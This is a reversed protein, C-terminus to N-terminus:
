QRRRIAWILWVLALLQVTWLPTLSARGSLGFVKQGLNWARPEGKRPAGAMDIGQTSVALEGKRWRPLIYGAFPKKLHVPVEPKVATGALMYHGSRAVLLGLVLTAALGLRKWTRASVRWPEGAFLGGALVALFPIAPILYRPGMAWGGQWDVLSSNLWLFLGIAALCVWVEARRQRQRLWLLCGPLAAWLWPAGFFLGRYSGTLIEGLASFNPKGLGM